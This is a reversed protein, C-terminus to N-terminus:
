RASPASADAVAIVMEALQVLLQFASCPFCPAPPARGASPPAPRDPWRRSPANRALMLWSIRVGCSRRMPMVPSSRSVSSVGSCCCNRFDRLWGAFAQQRDDVVNQIELISALFNSSSISSKSRRSRKPPRRRSTPAWPRRFLVPVSRCQRGSTGEDHPAVWATQPLDEILRTPLAM